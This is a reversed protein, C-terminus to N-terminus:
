VRPFTFICAHANFHLSFFSISPASSHGAGVIGGEARTVAILEMCCLVEKFCRSCKILSGQFVKSVSQICAAMFFRSVHRLSGQLIKSNSKARILM